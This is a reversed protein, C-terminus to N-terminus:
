EYTNGQRDRYSVRVDLTADYRNPKVQLLFGRSGGERITYGSWSVTKGTVTAPPASRAHGLERPLTVTIKVDLAADSGVNTVLIRYGAPVNMISPRPKVVSVKIQPRKLPEPTPTPSVPRPSPTPTPTAPTPTPTQPKPTPSPSTVPSPSAISPSTEPTLQPSPSVDGVPLSPTPSATPSATPTPTPSGNDGSDGSFFRYGFFLAVGLLALLIASGPLLIWNPARKPPSVPAPAAAEVNVTPGETFDEDPNLASAVDLRFSCKGAPAGAADFNVTVQETAGAGFDRETEGSITLWEQKTDGLPKPRAICRVPRATANTVVFVAQAHGKADAKLTDTASTTITFSQQKANPIPPILGGRKEEESGISLKHFHLESLARPPLEPAKSPLPEEWYVPRIFKERNLGLAYEWEQKVFPSIMSNSSWFLQFVSAERIMRELEESWNQGSRLTRVDRLYEDGLSEVYNEFDEVIATDKHSYSAFIKRYPEASTAELAKAEPTVYNSDITIRLPVETLIVNGLYVTMQGEVDRGDFEAAARMEFEVKHVTKQWLVSQRPPNFECGEILPVFTLQGKQPVSFGRDLRAAEYKAPQDSLIRAAQRQVEQIPDPEDKPADERRKSLHAFAVLSYWKAPVITNPRYVTFQVNKDILTESTPPESTPAPGPAMMAGGGDGSPAGTKRRRSFFWAVFVLDLAVFVALVIWVSSSM